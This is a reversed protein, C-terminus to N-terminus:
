DAIVMGKHKQKRSYKKKSEIKQTCPNIGWTKRMKLYADVWEADYTKKKGM